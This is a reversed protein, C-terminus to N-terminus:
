LLVSLLPAEQLVVHEQGDQVQPLAFSPPSPSRYSFLLASVADAVLGTPARVYREELQKKITKKVEQRLNTNTYSEGVVLKNADKLDVDLSYSRFPFFSFLRPSSVRRVLAAIFVMASGEDLGLMDRLAGCFHPATQGTTHLTM